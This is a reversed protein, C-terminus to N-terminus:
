RALVQALTHELAGRPDAAGTERALALAADRWATGDQSCSSMAKHFLVLDSM